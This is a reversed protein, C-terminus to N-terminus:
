DHHKRGDLCHVRDHDKILNDLEAKNVAVKNGIGNLDEKLKRQENYHEDHMKRCHTLDIKLNEKTENIENWIGKIEKDRSANYISMSEKMNKVTNLAVWVVITAIISLLAIVMDIGVVSDTINTVQESM